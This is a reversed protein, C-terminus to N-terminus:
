EQPPASDPPLSIAPSVSPFPTPQTLTEPQTKETEQTKEQEDLKERFMELDKKAQKYDDSGTDKILTIGNELQAVAERYQNNQYYAWGLNYHYNPIDNKLSNAQELFRVSEQYNKLGYYISGLSFHYTPNNPDLGIARQYSAVAWVDAGQAVTLVNGYVSGMFAWYQARNSNLTVLAKAEQISQQILQSVLQSQEENLKKGKANKVINNAIQLNTQAFNMHFVERYPNLGIAERQLDYVEQGNNTQAAAFSQRFLYEARLGRYAAFSLLLATIGALAAFTVYVIPISQFDTKKSSTHNISLLILLLLMFWSMYSIPLLLWVLALVVFAPLSKSARSRQYLAFFLLGITTAGLLGTDVMIQLLASSAIDPTINWLNPLANYSLPKAAVFMTDFNAPGVGLFAVRMSKLSEAFTQWALHYPLLTPQIEKLLIYAAGITVALSLTFLGLDVGSKLADETHKEHDETIVHPIIFATLLAGYMLLGIYGGTTVFGKQSLFEWYSGLSNFLGIYTFLAIIASVFLGAYASAAVWTPSRKPLLFYASVMLIPMLAGSTPNFLSEIKNPANFIVSVVYALALSLLAIDYPGGAYWDIRKLIILKVGKIILLAVILGAGLLLKATGLVDTFFPLFFLPFLFIFLSEVLQEITLILANEQKETM